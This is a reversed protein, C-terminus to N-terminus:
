LASQFSPGIHYLAFFRWSWYCLYTVANTLTLGLAAWSLKRQVSSINASQHFRRTRITAVVLVVLPLALLVVILWVELDFLM